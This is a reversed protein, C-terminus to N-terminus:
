TTPTSTETTTPDLAEIMATTTEVTTLQPAQTADTTEEVGCAALIFVSLVVLVSLARRNLPSSREILAAPHNSRHSV